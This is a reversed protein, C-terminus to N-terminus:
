DFQVLPRRQRRICPVSFVLFKFYLFCCCVCVCYYCTLLPAHVRTPPTRGAMPTESFARGSGVQVNTTAMDFPSCSTDCRVQVHQRKPTSQRHPCSDASGSRWCISGSAAKNVAGKMRSQVAAAAGTTLEPTADMAAHLNRPSFHAPSLRSTKETETENGQGAAVTDNTETIQRKDWTLNRLSKVGECTRSLGGIQCVEYSIALRVASQDKSIPDDIMVHACM